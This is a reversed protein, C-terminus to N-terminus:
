TVIDLDMISPIAEMLTDARKAGVGKVEIMQDRTITWALPVGEFHDFIAGATVVSVGDFSQLLHIAWDRNSAKGWSSTAKPRTAVLSHNNKDLYKKLQSLSEITDERSDTSLVWFGQSQMSYTLGRLQVKSWGTVAGSTGNTAWRFNGEILLIIIDLNGAKMKSLEKGLLGNHLSNVLDKVEKRQVGVSLGAETLWYFDAGFKEPIASVTGIAKLVPPEAPSILIM